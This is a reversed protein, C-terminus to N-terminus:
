SIPSSPHTSCLQEIIPRIYHQAEPALTSTIALQFSLLDCLPSLFTEAEDFFAKVYPINHALLATKESMVWDFEAPLNIGKVGHHAMIRRSFLMVARAGLRMRVSPDPVTIPAPPTNAFFSVFKDRKSSGGFAKLHSFFLQCSRSGFVGDGSDPKCRADSLVNLVFFWLPFLHYETIKPPSHHTVTEVLALAYSQWHSADYQHINRRQKELMVLLCLSFRRENCAQVCLEWAVTPLQFTAVATSFKADEKSLYSQLAAEFVEFILYPPQHPKSEVILSATNLIELCLPSSAVQISQLILGHVKLNFDPDSNPHRELKATLRSKPDKLLQPLPASANLIDLVSLMLQGAVRVSVNYRALPLIVTTLLSIQERSSLHWTVARPQKNKDKAGGGGPKSSSRAQKPVTNNNDNNNNNNNNNNNSQGMTHPNHLCASMMGRTERVCAVIVMENGSALSIDRLLFANELLSASPDGAARGDKLTRLLISQNFSTALDLPDIKSWDLNDSAAAAAAGSPQALSSPHLPDMLSQLLAADPKIIARLRAPIADPDLINWDLFWQLFSVSAEPPCSFSDWPLRQIVLSVLQTHARGVAWDYGVLSAPLQAGFFLVKPHQLHFTAQQWPLAEAFRVVAQCKDELLSAYGPLEKPTHRVSRELLVCAVLWMRDVLHPSRATMDVFIDYLHAFGSAVMPTGHSSPLYQPGYLDAPNSSIRDILGHITSWAPNPV